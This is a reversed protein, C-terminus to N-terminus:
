PITINMALGHVVPGEYFVDQLVELMGMGERGDAPGMTNEDAAVLRM